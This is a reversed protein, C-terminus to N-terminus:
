VTGCADAYGLLDESSIQIEGPKERWGGAGWDWGGGGRRLGRESEGSMRV